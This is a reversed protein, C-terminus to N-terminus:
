RLAIWIVAVATVAIGILLLVFIVLALTRSQGHGEVLDISNACEPCISSPEDLKTGCEPCITQNMTMHSAVDMTQAVPVTRLHRPPMIVTQLSAHRRSQVPRGPM